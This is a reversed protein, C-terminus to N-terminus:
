FFRNANGQLNVKFHGTSFVLLIALKWRRQNGKELEAIEGHLDKSQEDSASSVNINVINCGLKHYANSM